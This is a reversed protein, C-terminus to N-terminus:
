NLNQDRGNAAEKVWWRINEARINEERDMKMSCSNFM